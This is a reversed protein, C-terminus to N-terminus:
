LSPTTRHLMYVMSQVFEKDLLVESCKQVLVHAGYRDALTLLPVNNRDIHVRM